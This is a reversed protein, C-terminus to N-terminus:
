EEIEWTGSHNLVTDPVVPPGPISSPAAAIVDFDGSAKITVIPKRDCFFVKSFSSKKARIMIKGIAGPVAAAAVHRYPQGAVGQTVAREVHEWLLVGNEEVTFLDSGKGVKIKLQKGSAWMWAGSATLVVSVGAVAIDTM